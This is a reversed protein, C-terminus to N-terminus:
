GMKPEDCVLAEHLVIKVLEKVSPANCKRLLTRVQTKLTNQTVGLRRLVERRSQNGLAYAIIQVERPTLSRAHALADVHAAVREDPLWGRVLARRIFSTLDVKGVPTHVHECQLLDLASSLPADLPSSLALVALTPHVERICRLATIPDAGLARLDVILGCWKANTALRDVAEVASRARRVVSYRQAAESLERALLDDNMLLLFSGPQAVTPVAVRAVSRVPSAPVREDDHSRALEGRLFTHSAAQSRAPLRPFLEARAELENTSLQVRARLEGM